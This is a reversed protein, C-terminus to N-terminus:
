KDLSIYVKSFSTRDQGKTKTSVRRIKNAPISLGPTKRVPPGLFGFVGAVAAGGAAAFSVDVFSVLCESLEWLNLVVVAAAKAAVEAKLFWCCHGGAPAIGAAVM